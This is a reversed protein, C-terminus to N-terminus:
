IYIEKQNRFWTNLLLKKIVNQQQDVSHKNTEELRKISEDKEKLLSDILFLEPKNFTQKEVKGQPTINAQNQITPNLVLQPNEQKQLKFQQLQNRQAPSRFLNDLFQKAKRKAM